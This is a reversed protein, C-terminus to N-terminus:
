GASKRSVQALCLSTRFKVRYSPGDRFALGSFDVSIGAAPSDSRRGRSIAHLRYALRDAFRRITGDLHEDGGGGEFNQNVLNARPFRFAAYDGSTRPLMLALSGGQRSDTHPVRYSAFLM